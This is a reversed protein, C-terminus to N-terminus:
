IGIPASTRGARKRSCSIPLSRSSLGTLIRDPERCGESRPAPHGGCLTRGPHQQHAPGCPFLVGADAIMSGTSTIAWCAYSSPSFARIKPNTGRASPPSHRRPFSGFAAFDEQMPPWSRSSCGNPPVDLRDRRRLQTLSDKWQELFAEPGVKAVTLYRVLQRVVDPYTANRSWSELALATHLNAAVDDYRAVALQRKTVETLRPIGVSPETTKLALTAAAQAARDFTPDADMARVLTGYAEPADGSLELAKGYNYLSRSKATASLMPDSVIRPIVPKMLKVADRPWDSRLLEAGHNSAAQSNMERDTSGMAQVYYQESQRLWQQQGTAPRHVELLSAFTLSLQAKEENSRADAIAKNYYAVVSDADKQALGTRGGGPLPRDAVLRSHNSEPRGAVAPGSGSALLGAICLSRTNERNRESAM